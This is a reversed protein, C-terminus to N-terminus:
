NFKEVSKRAVKFGMNGLKVQKSADQDMMDDDSLGFDDKKAEQALYNVLLQSINNNSGGKSAKKQVRRNPDKYTNKKPAPTTHSSTLHSFIQYRYYFM